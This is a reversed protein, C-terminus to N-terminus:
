RLHADLLLWDAPAGKCPNTILGSGGTTDNTNGAFAGTSATLPALAPPTASLIEPSLKPETLEDFTPIMNDLGPSVCGHWAVMHFDSLATSHRTPGPSPDPQDTATVTLPM